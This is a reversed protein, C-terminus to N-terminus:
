GVVVPSFHKEVAALLSLGVVWSTKPNDPSPKNRLETHMEGAAGAVQVHHENGQANPDVVVRVQTATMGLGAMALTAAVNLNQPFLQAAEGAPGEFLTICETPALPLGRRALEDQWAAPPKRSEYVVVTSPLRRVAQLYDLSGVAGSPLILRTSGSLAARTLAARLDDDALAGVSAAMFPLGAKLCPEAYDRVAAQGAAEIVLDPKFTLLGTLGRLAQVGPPLDPLAAREARFVVGLDFNLRPHTRLRETLERAIAGYGIVAIRLTKM